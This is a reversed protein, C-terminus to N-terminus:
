PGRWRRLVAAVGSCAADFSDAVAPSLADSWAISLPQVCLLARRPPVCDLLRAMDLLDCLGVEHVSRRRSSVLFRDMEQNEFVRVAGPAAGLDAADVVLMADAAQIFQLLSFSLTGGDIFQVAGAPQEMQLREVLRIGVGDDALLVNGMGLVLVNPAVPEAVVDAFTGARDGPWRDQEIEAAM